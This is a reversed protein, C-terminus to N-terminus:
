PQNEYDEPNSGDTFAILGASFLLFGIVLGWLDRTFPLFPKGLTSELSEGADSPALLYFFDAGFPTLFQVMAMREPTVQVMTMREPTVWFDGLCADYNGVAIDHVCATWSSRVGDVIVRRSM